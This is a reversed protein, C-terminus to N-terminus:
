LARRVLKFATVMVLAALIAGGVTVIDTNAATIQDTVATTVVSTGAAFSPVAVAFGLLAGVSAVYKSIKNKM